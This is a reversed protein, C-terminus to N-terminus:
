ARAALRMVLPVAAVVVAALGAAGLGSWEILPGTMLAMLLAAVGAFTDVVGIARGREATEAYDAVIATAAINAASWGLGVLFTGLTISWYHATFTVLAAGVITMVVGPYMVAGRGYRDALAGIPISFAFMGSSHLAMSMAIAGLSHGHHDLVLATLVMVISMNAHGACNAVIALRTPVHRMLSAWRFQRQVGEKSKEQVSPLDPYYHALNMGIEKPEPDIWKVLLMGPVILLPLLLWPIGLPDQGIRQAILEGAHILLPSFVVGLVSGTAVYGLARARLAAPFMDAAAVRLQQAANVGMGFILMGGFLVAFSRFFMSAGVILGGVLALALGFQIGPKRGYLDTVKGIPYAVLFRSLGILGVALGAWVASGTLAIVMLPVLGFAFQMGAGVFSQSVAILATNRKILRPIM